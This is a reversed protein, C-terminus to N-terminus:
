NLTRNGKVPDPEDDPPDFDEGNCPDVKKVVAEGSDLKRRKV